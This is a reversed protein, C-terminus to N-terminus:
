ISTQLTMFYGNAANPAQSVFAIYYTNPKRLDNSLTWEDESTFLGRLSFLIRDPAHYDIEVLPGGGTRSAWTYREYTRTMILWGGSGIVAFRYAPFQGTMATYQDATENSGWLVFGAYYGDSKTVTPLDKPGPAWKVGQGGQWGSAVMTNDVAVTVCDGKFLIVCDRNRPNEPM